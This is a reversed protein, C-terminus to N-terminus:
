QAKISHDLITWCPILHCIEQGWPVMHIETLTAASLPPYIACRLLDGFILPELSSSLIDYYGTDLTISVPLKYWGGQSLSLLINQLTISPSSDLGEQCLGGGGFKERLLLFDFPFWFEVCVYWPNNYCMVRHIVLCTM